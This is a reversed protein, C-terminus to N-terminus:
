KHFKSEYLNIWDKPSMKKALEGILKIPVDEAKKFRLCSKGMDLKKSSYKPFENTFWELLKPEAYIGMHYIAIHSKQSAISIFPLAQKPDCHYGKPYISHPVVFSLFGYSITEEFGKPLNQKIIDRLQTIIEKRDESISNIYEEPTQLNKDM